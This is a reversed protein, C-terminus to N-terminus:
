LLSAIKSLQEVNFYNYYEKFDYKHLCKILKKQNTISKDSIQDFLYLHSEYLYQVIIQKTCNMKKAEKIVENMTDIYAICKEEDNNLNKNYCNIYTISNLISMKPNNLIVLSNFYNDQYFNINTSFKIKKDILFKRRYIKGYLDGKTDLKIDQKEDFIFSSVYDKDKKIEKYLIEISDNCYFLDDSNIFMIYEHKTHDIGYQKAYCKDINNDLSFIQINLHNNFKKYIKEYNSDFKNYILAIHLKNKISQSMLSLLTYEINKKEDNVTIIVDIM